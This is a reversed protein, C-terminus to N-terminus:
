RRIRTRTSCGFRTTRARSPYRTAGWACVELLNVGPACAAGLISLYGVAMGRACAESAQMPDVQEGSYVMLYIGGAIWYVIVAGFIMCGFTGFLFLCIKAFIDKVRKMDSAEMNNSISPLRTKKLCCGNWISLGEM